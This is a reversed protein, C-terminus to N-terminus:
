NNTGTRTASAITLQFEDKTMPRSNILEGDENYYGTMKSEQDCIRYVKGKVEEHKLKICQLSKLCVAKYPSLKEKFEKKKEALEDNLKAIEISSQSFENQHFSLEDPNLERMYTQEEVGDATNSLLERREHPSENQFLQKKM